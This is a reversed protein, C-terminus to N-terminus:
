TSRLSVDRIVEVVHAVMVIPHVDEGVFAASCQIDPHRIIDRTTKVLVPMSFDVPKRFSIMQVAEDPKLVKAVHVVGDGALLFQFAPASTPFSRKDFLGVWLPEIETVVPFL